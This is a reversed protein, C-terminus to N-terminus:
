SALPAFCHITIAFVIIKRHIKLRKPEAEPVDGVMQQRSGIFNWYKADDDDLRVYSGTVSPRSSPISMWGVFGLDFM